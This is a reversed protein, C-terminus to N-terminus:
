ALDFIAPAATIRWTADQRKLEFTRTQGNGGPSGGFFFPRSDFSIEIEVKATDGSITSGIMRLRRNTPRPQNLVQQRFAERTLSEGRPGPFPGAAAQPSALLDWAADPEHNQIALIYATAVGQPTSLDPPAQNVRGLAAVGLAIACIAIVGAVLGWTWRDM